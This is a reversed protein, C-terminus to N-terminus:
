RNEFFTRDTGGDPALHKSAPRCFPRTAHLAGCRANCASLQSDRLCLKNAQFQGQEDAMINVLMRVWALFHKTRRSLRFPVFFDQLVFRLLVWALNVVESRAHFKVDVFNM